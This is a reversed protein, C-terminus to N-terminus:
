RTSEAQRINRPPSHWGWTVAQDFRRLWAPADATIM